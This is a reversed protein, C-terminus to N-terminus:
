ELCNITWMTWLPGKTFGSLFHDCEFQHLGCDTCTWYTSICLNKLHYWSLKFNYFNTFFLRVFYKQMKKWSYTLIVIVLVNRSICGLFILADLICQLKHDWRKGVNEKKKKFMKKNNNLSAYRTSSFLKFITIKSVYNM